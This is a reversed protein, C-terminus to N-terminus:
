FRFVSSIVLNTETKSYDLGWDIQFNSFLVVGNGITIHSAGNGKRFLVKVLQEDFPGLEATSVIQLSNSPKYYYGERLAIPIEKWFILFEAGVHFEYTSDIKFGIGPYTDTLYNYNPRFDEMLDSYEVHVLDSSVIIKDNPEFRVGAGAIDPIKLVNEFDGPKIASDGTETEIVSFKANKKYVAGLFLKSSAQYLVGANWAVASDTDDVHTQFAPFPFQQGNVDLLLFNNVDTKWDLHSYRISGGVSLKKSFRHAFSFNWNVVNQNATTLNLVNLPIFGGGEKPLLIQIIENLNGGIRVAEQRSFAFVNTKRPYVVCFFSPRNLTDLANESKITVAQERPPFTNIANLTAPDFQTNRFEFSVEPKDLITLGAPNAEAATADDALAIFANGMGTARAGPNVFSFRFNRFLEEDTIAFLQTAFLVLTIFIPIVHKSPRNNM